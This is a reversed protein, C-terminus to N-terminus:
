MSASQMDVLQHLMTSSYTQIFTMVVCEVIYHSEWMTIAYAIGDENEPGRIGDEVDVELVFENDFSLKDFLSQRIYRPMANTISYMTTIIYVIVVASPNKDPNRPCDRQFRASLAKPRDELEFLRNEVFVLQIHLM